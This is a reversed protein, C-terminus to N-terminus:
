TITSSKINMPFKYLENAKRSTKKEKVFFTTLFMDGLENFKKEQIWQMTFKCFKVEFLTVNDIFMRLIGARTVWFNDYKIFFM